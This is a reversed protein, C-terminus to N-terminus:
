MAGDRHSAGPCLGTRLAAEQERDPRSAGEGTEKIPATPLPKDLPFQITGKSTSYGHLDDKFAEVISATPFLSCHDRFAAFWVLTGKHKYAPMQYSITETTEPPVVSRIIARM